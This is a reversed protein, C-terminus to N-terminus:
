GIVYAAPVMCYVAEEDFQIVEVIASKLVGEPTTMEFKCVANKYEKDFFYSTWVKIM